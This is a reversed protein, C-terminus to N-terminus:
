SDEEDDVLPQTPTMPAELFNHSKLHPWEGDEWRQYVPHATNKYPFQEWTKAEYKVEYPERTGDANRKGFAYVEFRRKVAELDGQVAILEELYYNSTIIFFCPRILCESGKKEVKFPYVDTWCKMNSVFEHEPWVGRQYDDLLIVPQNNYQGFWKNTGNKVMFANPDNKLMARAAWSKGAETPGTIWISKFTMNPLPQYEGAYDHIAHFNRWHNVLMRPPIQRFNGQMASELYGDWQRRSMEGLEEKTFPPKGYEEFKGDKKCYEIHQPVSRVISLHPRKGNITCTDRVGNFFRANPFSCHGQVHPMRTRPAIEHGVVLHQFEEKHAHFWERMEEQSVNCVTFAWHRARSGRKNAPPLPATGPGQVIGDPLEVEEQQEDKNVRPPRYPVIEKPHPTDGKRWTRTYGEEDIGMDDEEQSFRRRRGKSDRNPDEPTVPAAAAAAGRHKQVAKYEALTYLPNDTKHEVRQLEFGQGEQDVMRQFKAIRDTGKAEPPRTRPPPPKMTNSRALSQTKTPLGALKRPSNGPETREKAPPAPEDFKRPKAPKKVRKGDRLGSIIKATEEPESDDDLFERDDTNMEDSDDDGSSGSGAAQDDFFHARVMSKPMPKSGSPKQKEDESSSSQSLDILVKKQTSM